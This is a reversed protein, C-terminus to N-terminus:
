HNMYNMNYIEESSINSLKEYMLIILTINKDLKYRNRLENECEEGLLVKSFRNTDNDREEDLFDLNDELNAIYFYFGDKGEMIMEESESNSFNTLYSNIIKQYIKENQQASTLNLEETLITTEIKETEIQCFDVGKPCTEYCKDDNEYKFNSCNDVCTNNEAIFKKKHFKWDNGCYINYCLKEEM